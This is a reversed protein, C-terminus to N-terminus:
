PTAYGINEDLARAALERDLCRDIQQRVRDTRPLGALARFSARNAERAATLEPASTERSVDRRWIVPIWAKSSM